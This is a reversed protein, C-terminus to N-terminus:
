SLFAGQPSHVPDNRSHEEDLSQQDDHRGPDSWQNCKPLFGGATM